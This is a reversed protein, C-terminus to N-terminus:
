RGLPWRRSGDSPPRQRKWPWTWRRRSVAVPAPRPPRPRQWPWAHVTVNRRSFSFLALILFVAAGGLLVAVNTADWGELVPNMETFYHHPVYPKLPEIRESVSGLGDIMYSAILLAASIATAHGRTPLYAGLWMSLTVFFM